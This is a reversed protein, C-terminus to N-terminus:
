ETGQRSIPSRTAPVTAAPSTRMRWPMRPHCDLDVLLRVPAPQPDDNGGAEVSSGPAIVRDVAPLRSLSLTPAKEVVWM